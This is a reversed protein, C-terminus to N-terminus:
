RASGDAAGEVHQHFLRASQRALEDAARGIQLRHLDHRRLVQDARHDGDCDGSGAGVAQEAHERVRRSDRCFGADGLRECSSPAQRCQAVQRGVIPENGGGALRVVGRGGLDHEGEVVIAAGRRQEALVPLVERQDLATEAHDRVRAAILDRM